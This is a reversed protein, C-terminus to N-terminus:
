KIRRDRHMTKIMKALTKGQREMAQRVARDGMASANSHMNYTNHTANSSTNVSSGRQGYNAPASMIAPLAAAIAPMAPMAGIMDRMPSAVSAPLVMERAHLQTLPNGSGTDYWGGEASAMPAYAMAAAMMSAGFAPASMNLPFPAMAMSATANAGAVGAAETIQGAATQSGMVRQMIQQSVWQAAMQSLVSMGSQVVGNLIDGISATGTAIGTITQGFTNGVGDAFSKWGQMDQAFQKRQLQQGQAKHQTEIETIRTLIQAYAVPDRDPSILAKERELAARKIEFIRDQFSQEAQLKRESATLGLQISADLADREAQIAALALVDARAAGINELQQRQEEAAREAEAIRAASEVGAKSEAGFRSVIQEHTKRMLSLRTEANKGAESESKKLAAVEAEYEQKTIAVKLDAVKKRIETEEKSGSKVITLKSQWFKLEEAKSFESFTNNAANKEAHAAQLEALERSFDQTVTPGAPGKKTKPKLSDEIRKAADEAQAVRASIETQSAGAAAGQAKIAAVKEALKAEREAKPLYQTLGDNITKDWAAKAQIQAQEKKRAEAAAEAAKKQSELATLRDWEISSIEGLEAKERLASIEKDTKNAGVGSIAQWAAGAIDKTALFARQLLGMEAIIDEAAKIGSAAYAEQAIQAAKHKDGSDMAAKIQEYTAETLFGFSKNLEVAATLPDQGLKAFIKVTDEVAQGGSRNLALAAETATQMVEPVVAGSKTLMTIAEVAAGSTTGAATAAANAYNNLQSATLGAAAGSMTVATALAHQSESASWAGAALVATAAAALTMPNRALDLLYGGVARLAGGVSGYMDKIQMGQQMLVMLPPMGSALSVAVDGMQMPLMRMNQAMQGATLTAKGHAGAAGHLQSIYHEAEASVGAQAARYRALAQAGGELLIQQERQAAIQQRLSDLYELGRASPAAPGMMQPM